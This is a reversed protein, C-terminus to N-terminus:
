ETVEAPSSIAKWPDLGAEKLVQRASRVDDRDVAGGALYELVVKLVSDCTGVTFREFPEKALAAQLFNVIEGWEAERVRRLRWLEHLDDLIAAGCVATEVSKGQAAGEKM